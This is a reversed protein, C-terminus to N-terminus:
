RRVPPQAAAFADLLAVLKAGEIEWNLAQRAVRARDRMRARGSPDALLGEIAAALAAPDDPDCTVGVNHEEVLAKMAPFNSAVVPVGAHIYEFLKNPLSHFYSLGANRVTAVGVDAAAAWAVVEGSPVPPEIRVRDVVGLEEGLRTLSAIYDAAGQGMLVVVADLGAMARILEELGRFPQLGGLYLVLPTESPIELAARLDPPASGTTAGALSPVNFVLLPRRVGYRRALEDAIPPSVTITAAARRILRREIASWRKRWLRSPRPTLITREVYLEHADYVVRGGHRARARAAIPLTELDHAWWVDARLRRAARLAHRAFKLWDLTMHARRAPDLLPGGTSTAVLAENGAYRGTERPQVRRAAIARALRLPLPDHEVRLVRVGERWEVAPLRRAVDRIALVTVEHGAAVLTTAEKLVRADHEFPNYLVM